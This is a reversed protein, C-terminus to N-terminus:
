SEDSVEPMEALAQRLRETYQARWDARGPYSERAPRKKPNAAAKAPQGPPAAAQPPTGITPRPPPAPNGPMTPPQGPMQAGGNVLGPPLMPPAKTLSAANDTDGPEEMELGTDKLKYAITARSMAPMDGWLVLNQRDVLVADDGGPVPPEGIENRYKNLVYAGNRLRMDRIQEITLSDRMDVEEFKLHWGKINFGHRCLHYDLKELVLAALPQCTNVIFSRRQSEGTGGGLNGSEIIGAEAPPVGFAAVIEDRKQDLTHLLEQVVQKGLEHVTAGGKTLIPRGINRPGLNQSM